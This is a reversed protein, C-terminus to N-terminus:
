DSFATQFQFYIKLRGNNKLRDKYTFSNGHSLFFKFTAFRM